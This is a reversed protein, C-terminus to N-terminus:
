VGYLDLIKLRLEIMDRTFGEEFVDGGDAITSRLLPEPLLAVVAFADAELKVRPEERLHFYNVQATAKPAHLFHHGVEHWATFLRPLGRMKSDLAIFRKGKCVGYFGRVSLPMEVVRIRERRTIRYFDAETLPRTNWGLREFKTLLSHV